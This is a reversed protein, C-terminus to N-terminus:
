SPAPADTSPTACRAGSRPSRWPLAPLTPIAPHPPPANTSRLLGAARIDFRAGAQEPAVSEIPVDIGLRRARAAVHDPDAILYFAPLDLERRRHWAMLAIDCGIGAPEGITLALAPDKARDALIPM